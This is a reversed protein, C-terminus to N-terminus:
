AAVAKVNGRVLAEYDARLQRTIPGVTYHYDVIQGVATVEAASGTIFIEDATALEDPFMAREVVKIGRAAALGMVTQRTIGNLFCDPTPTNIVGDKVLFLNAGTAEALQGRYDMMLADHWGEAEAAHKSLTCIM